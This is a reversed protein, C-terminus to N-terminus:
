VSRRKANREFDIALREFDFDLTKKAKGARLAAAITNIIYDNTSEGGTVDLLTSDLSVDIRLSKDKPSLRGIRPKAPADISMEGELYIGILIRTLGTGYEEPHLEGSVTKEFGHDGWIYEKLCAAATPHSSYLYFGIM